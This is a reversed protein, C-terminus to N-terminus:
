RRGDPQEKREQVIQRVVGPITWKNVCPLGAFKGVGSGGLHYIKDLPDNRMIAGEFDGILHHPLKYIPTKLVGLVFSIVVDENTSTGGDGRGRKMHERIECLFDDPLSGLGFATPHRMAMCFGSMHVWGDGLFCGPHAVSGDPSVHHFGFAHFSDERCLIDILERSALYSDADLRVIIDSPSAGHASADDAYLGFSRIQGVSNAWCWERPCPAKLIVPFPGGSLDMPADIHENAIVIRAVHPDDMAVISEACQVALDADRLCSQIYFFLRM